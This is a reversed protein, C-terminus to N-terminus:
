PSVGCEQITTIFPHDPTISRPTRLETRPVSHRRILHHNYSSLDQPSSVIRPGAHFPIFAWPSEPRRRLSSSAKAEGREKLGEDSDDLWREPKFEDADEGWLDKRRQMWVKFYVVETEAPIYYKRGGPAPVTTGGRLPSKANVPVPPILRM